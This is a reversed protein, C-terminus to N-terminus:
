RTILVRARRLAAFAEREVEVGHLGADARLMVHAFGAQRTASRTRALFAQVADRYARAEEPGALLREGSEVDVVELRGALPEL